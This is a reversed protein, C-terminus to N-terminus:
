VEVIFQDSQWATMGGGQKKLKNSAELPFLMARGLESTFLEIAQGMCAWIPESGSVGGVHEGKVCAASGAELVHFGQGLTVNTIEPSLVKVQTIASLGGKRQSRM